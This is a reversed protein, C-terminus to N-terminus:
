KEEDLQVILVDGKLNHNLKGDITYVEYEKDSYGIPTEWKGTAFSFNKTMWLQKNNDWTVCDVIIGVEVGLFDKEEKNVIVADGYPCQLNYADEGIIQILEDSSSCAAAPVTIIFSMVMSVILLLGKFM